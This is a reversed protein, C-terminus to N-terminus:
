DTTIYTVIDEAIFAGSFADSPIEGRKETFVVVYRHGSLPGGWVFCTAGPDAFIRPPYHFKGFATATTPKDRFDRYVDLHAANGLFGDMRKVHAQSFRAMERWEEPTVVNRAYDSFGRHFLKGGEVEFSARFLFVSLGAMLVKTLRQRGTFLSHIASGLLVGGSVLLLLMPLLEAPLLPPIAWWDNSRGELYPMVVRAAFAALAIVTWAINKGTQVFWSPQSPIAIDVPALNAPPPIPSGTEEDRYSCLEPAMFALYRNGQTLKALSSRAGAYTVASPEQELERRLDAEPQTWCM